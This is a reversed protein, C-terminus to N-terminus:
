MASQLGAPEEERAVWPLPRGCGRCEYDPSEDGILCGGLVVEGREAAESLEFGPLGYLIPIVERSGCAPCPPFTVRTQDM